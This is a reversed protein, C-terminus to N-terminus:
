PAAETEYFLRAANRSVSVLRVLVDTTPDDTVDLVFTSFLRVYIREALAEIKAEPDAVRRDRPNM